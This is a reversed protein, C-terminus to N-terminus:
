DEFFGQASANSIVKPYQQKIQMKKKPIKEYFPPMSMQMIGNAPDVGGHRAWGTYNKKNKMLDRIDASALGNGGGFGTTKGGGIPGGGRGFNPGTSAIEGRLGSFDANGDVPGPPLVQGSPPTHVASVATREVKPMYNFTEMGLNRHSTNTLSRGQLGLIKGVGLHQPHWPTGIERPHFDVGGSTALSGNQGQGGHQALKTSDTIRDSNVSNGM